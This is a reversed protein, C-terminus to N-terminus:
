ADGGAAEPEDLKGTAEETARNVAEGEASTLEMLRNREIVSVLRWRKQKSIPRTAAIEVRDGPAAKGEEDHAMYKTSTRVYKGYKPHRYTREVEVTISKACKTSTVVGQLTRRKNRTATM